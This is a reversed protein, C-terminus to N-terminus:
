TGPRRPVFGLDGQRRVTEQSRLLKHARALRELHGTGSKSADSLIKDCGPWKCVAKHEKKGDDQTVLRYEFHGEVWVWSTRQRKSGTTTSSPAATSNSAAGSSSGAASSPHEQSSPNPIQTNSQELYPYDETSIGLTEPTFFIMQEPIFGSPHPNFPSPPQDM